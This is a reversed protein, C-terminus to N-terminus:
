NVRHQELALRWVETLLVQRRSKATKPEVLAFGEKTRQLSCQMQVVGRELDVEDWKLGLLEGQRMGTTVALTILTGFRESRAAEIL